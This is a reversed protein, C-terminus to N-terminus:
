LSQVLSNDNACESIKFINQMRTYIGIKRVITNLKDCVNKKLQQSAKSINKTRFTGRMIERAFCMRNFWGWLLVRMCEDNTLNDDYLYSILSAKITM